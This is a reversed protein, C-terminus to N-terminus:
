IKPATMYDLIADEAAGPGNDRNYLRTDLVDEIRIKMVRGLYYDFYPKPGQELMAREMFMRAEESSMSGPRYKLFGNGQPRARNYLVRFVENKDLASIDM